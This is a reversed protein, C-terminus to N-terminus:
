DQSRSAYRARPTRLDNDELRVKRCIGFGAELMRQVEPDECDDAVEDPDNAVGLVDLIGTVSDFDEVVSDKCNRAIELDWFDATDDADSISFEGDPIIDGDEDREDIRHHELTM